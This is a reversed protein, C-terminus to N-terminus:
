CTFKKTRLMSISSCTHSRAHESKWRRRQWTEVSLRASCQKNVSKMARKKMLRSSSVCTHSRAHQSELKAREFKRLLTEGLMAQECEDNAKEEHSPFQIRICAHAHEKKESIPFPHVHTYTGARSASMDRCVQIDICFGRTVTQADTFM